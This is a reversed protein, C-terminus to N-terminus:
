GIYHFRDIVFCSSLQKHMVYYQEHRSVTPNNLTAKRNNKWQYLISFPFPSSRPFWLFTYIYFFIRVTSATIQFLFYGFISLFIQDKARVSYVHNCTSHKRNAACVPLHALCKVAIKKKMPLVCFAVLNMSIRARTHVSPILYVKVSKRVFYDCRASPPTYGAFWRNIHQAVPLYLVHFATSRCANQTSRLVAAVFRSISFSWCFNDGFGPTPFRSSQFRNM